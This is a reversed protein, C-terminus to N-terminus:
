WLAVWREKSRVIYGLLKAAKENITEKLKNNRSWKILGHNEEYEIAASARM